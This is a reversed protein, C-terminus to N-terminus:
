ERRQPQGPQTAPPLVTVRGRNRYRWLERIGWPVMVTLLTMAFSFISGFFVYIAGPPPNPTDALKWAVAVVGVAFWFAALLLMRYPM